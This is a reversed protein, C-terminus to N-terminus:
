KKELRITVSTTWIKNSKIEVPWRLLFCTSQYIPEINEMRKTMTEVPFKWLSFNDSGLLSMTVKKKVEHM